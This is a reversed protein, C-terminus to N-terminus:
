GVVVNAEKKYEVSIEYGGEPTPNFVIEIPHENELDTIVDRLSEGYYCCTIYRKTLKPHNSSVFRFREEFPSILNEEFIRRVTEELPAHYVEIQNLVIRERLLTYLDCDTM